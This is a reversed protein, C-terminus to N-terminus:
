AAKSLAYIAADVAEFDERAASLADNISLGDECHANVRQLTEIVRPLLHEAEQKALGHLLLNMGTTAAEDATADYDECHRWVAGIYAMLANFIPLYLTEPDVVAPPEDALERAAEYREEEPTIADAQQFADATHEYIDM